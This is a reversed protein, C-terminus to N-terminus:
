ALDVTSTFVSLVDIRSCRGSYCLLPQALFTLLIDSGYLGRTGVGYLAPVSWALFWAVDVIHDMWRM